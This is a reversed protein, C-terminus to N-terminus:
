FMNKIEYTNDESYEIEESVIRALTIISENPYARVLSALLRECFLAFGLSAYLEETDCVETCHRYVFYALARELEKEHTPTDTSSSYVSFMDKHTEDLYELSSTLDKWECDSHCAPSINYERSINELRENYPLATDHLISFIKKRFERVDFLETDCEGCLEDTEALERYDEASLILRAAEECCMGLGAEMGYPTENYFRPHERCIDCLADEGVELIIKCLGKEDLHPCREDSCLKFHGDEISERITKGYPHPLVDYKARTDSDVDIEWGICCSHTCRDATCKFDKYYKPAYLKM